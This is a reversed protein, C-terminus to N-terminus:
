SMARRSLRRLDIAFASQLVGTVIAFAAILAANALAGDRTEILMVVGFTVAVIGTWVLLTAREGSFPLVHAEIMQVVGLVIAWAAVVVLVLTTQIDPWALLAVGVVIAIVADLVVWARARGFPLAIATAGSLAGHVLACAAISVVLTDLGLDPWMLVVVGFVIWVLGHALITAWTRALISEGEPRFGPPTPDVPGLHRSVERAEDWM